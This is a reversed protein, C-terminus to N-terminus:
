RKQYIIKGDPDKLEVFEVECLGNSIFGLGTILGASIKYDASFSEINNIKIVAKRNKVIFEINQWNKVDMALGSLDATSGNLANDGFQVSIENSCGKPMSKFYMFNKQCFIECMLSPCVNNRIENVKVRCKLIFNDSSSEFKSPFYAMIYQNEKEINVLSNVADEKSIQLHKDQKEGVTIYKPLNDGSREKAYYIWKDTPISVDVTKIISDNAILKAVHYGPEYYIDTFVHQNKDIKVRRRKDWSQQIFFSDANVKDLNYKFVVTNPIDNNTTKVASFQAKDYNLVPRSSRKIFGFFIIIAFVIVALGIWNWNVRLNYGRLPTVIKKEENVTSIAQMSIKYEQWTKFGLYAAIANLTTTQPIRSFDANLLRKITSVSLLIGTKEEIEGSILEFDRQTMSVPDDFGNKRCIEKICSRVLDQDSM